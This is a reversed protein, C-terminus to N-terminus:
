PLPIQAFRLFAQGATSFQIEVASGASCQTIGTWSGTTIWDGKKLGETRSAGENALWPLLRMLDGATNSGTREVRVSGDVALTVSEKTFDISLWNPVAEGYVFGGHLSMDAVNTLKTAKSPDILATELIEIAPHMSAIAAVVEERSYPTERPPLDAGLHFAIEAEVGRYRHMLGRLECGSCSMWAAPMPAFSPTADPTPAGVKWGGIAEYAWSMRDQIFYAEELTTPRVEKPLDVIPRNTRRADLLLDAANILDKRRAGTMM